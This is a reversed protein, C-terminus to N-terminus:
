LEVGFARMAAKFADGLALNFVFVLVAASVLAVAFYVIMARAISRRNLNKAKMAMIICAALGIVPISFLLLMFFFGATGIARYPSGKPPPEGGAHPAQAHPPTATATPPPSAAPPPATATQPPTAAPQPPPFTATPPPPAASLTAKGVPQAPTAPPAAKATLQPPAATATPPLPPATAAPRPQTGGAMPEPALKAAERAIDAVSPQRDEEVVPKGCETCFRVNEPVSAGCGTCFTGM